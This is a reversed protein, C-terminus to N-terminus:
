SKKRQKITFLLFSIGSLGIMAKLYFPIGAQVVSLGQGPAAYPDLMFREIEGQSMSMYVMPSGDAIRPSNKVLTGSSSTYPLTLHIANQPKKLSIEGFRNRIDDRKLIEAFYLFSNTQLPVLDVGDGHLHRSTSSGGVASNVSSNRYASAIRFPGLQNKLYELEIALRKLNNFASETPNNSIGTSTVSLDKLKYSPSLQTNPDFTQGGGWLFDLM